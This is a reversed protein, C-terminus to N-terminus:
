DAEVWDILEVPYVRYTTGNYDMDMNLDYENKEADDDYKKSSWDKAGLEQARKNANEALKQALERSVFAAVIWNRYDSYEGTEGEVLYIDM